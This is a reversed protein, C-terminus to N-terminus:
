SKFNDNETLTLSKLNQLKLTSSKLFEFKELIWIEGFDFYKKEDCIQFKTSFLLKSTYAIVNLAGCIIKPASQSQLYQVNSTCLRRFHYVKQKSKHEQSRWVAIWVDQNFYLYKKFFHCFISIHHPPHSFVYHFFILYRM